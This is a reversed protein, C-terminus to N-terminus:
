AGEESSHPSDDQSDVEKLRSPQEEISFDGPYVHGGTNRSDTAGRTQELGGYYRKV